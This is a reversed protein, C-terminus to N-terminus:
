DGSCVRRCCSNENLRMVGSCARRCSNENLRMVGSCARRCRSNDNLRMVGGSDGDILEGMLTISGSPSM